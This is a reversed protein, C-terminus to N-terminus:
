SLALGALDCVNGRAIVCVCVCVCVVCACVYELYLCVLALCAISIQESLCM